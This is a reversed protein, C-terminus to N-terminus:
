SFKWASYSPCKVSRVAHQDMVHSQCNFIDKQDFQKFLWTPSVLKFRCIFRQVQVQKTPGSFKKFVEVAHDAGIKTSPMAEISDTGLKLARAASMPM